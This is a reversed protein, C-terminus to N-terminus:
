RNHKKLNKKAEEREKDREQYLEHSDLPKGKVPPVPDFGGHSWPNCRLIRAATLYTGFLFGHREYAVRSYESCTPYYRCSPPLLPSIFLQYLRVLWSALRGLLMNVQRM